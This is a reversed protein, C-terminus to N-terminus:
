PTVFYHVTVCVATVSASLDATLATNASLEWPPDFNMVFGGGSAACLGVVRPTTIAGDYFKAAALTSSTNGAMIGTVHISQGAGPAAVLDKNTTVSLTFTNPGQGAAASSATASPINKTVVLRGYLDFWADVRDAAGVAADEVDRARGGIKIPNSSYYDLADEEPIDHPTDGSIEKGISAPADYYFEATATATGSSIALINVRFYKGYHHRKWTVLLKKIYDRHRINNKGQGGHRIWIDAM